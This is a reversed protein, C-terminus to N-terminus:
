AGYYGLIFKTLTMASEAIIAGILVNKMKKNKDAIMAQDESLSKQLAQYGLYLGSALPIIALLWTNADNLLKITNKVIDPQAFVYDTTILLLAFTCLCINYVKELKNLGILAIKKM